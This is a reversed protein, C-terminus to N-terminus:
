YNILIFTLVSYDIGYYIDLKKVIIKHKIIFSVNWIIETLKIIHTDWKTNLHSLYVVRIRPYLSRTSEFM